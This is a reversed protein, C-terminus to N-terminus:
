PGRSKLMRKYRRDFLRKADTWETVLIKWLYLLKVTRDFKGIDNIETAIALVLTITMIGNNSKVITLIRERDADTTEILLKSYMRVMGAGSIHAEQSLESYFWTNLYELFKRPRLKIGSKPKLVQGLYPWYPIAVPNAALKRNIKYTKRLYELNEEQQKIQKSFKRAAGLEGKLRELSEKLERWGSWHYRKVYQRPKQRIVIITILLDILFRILPSVTLGFELKRKYDDGSDAILYRIADFTNKTAYAIVLLFPQYGPINKAPAPLNRDVLNKIAILVRDIDEQFRRDILRSVPPLKSM